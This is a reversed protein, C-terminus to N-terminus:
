HRQNYKGSVSGSIPIRRLGRVHQRFPTLVHGYPFRSISLSAATEPSAYAQDGPMQLMSWVVPHEERVQPALSKDRACGDRVPWPGGWSSAPTGLSGQLPPLQSSPTTLMWCGAASPEPSDGPM